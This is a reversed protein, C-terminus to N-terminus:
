PIRFGATRLMACLRILPLGVLATPDPGELSELLGIGLSESKAAGACDYPRDRELYREIEDDGLERFVVRTTVCDILPEAGGPRWVCIGTHFLMTRGSAARLQAVARRHEGPKGIIGVGDLTATQDSGIVVADPRREAVARAKAVSLRRALEAPADGPQPAEDVDPALVEFPLGLRGLLERRYRSTSALILAATVPVADPEPPRPAAAESSPARIPRIM